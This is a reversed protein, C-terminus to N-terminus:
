TSLVAGNVSVAVWKTLASFFKLTVTQGIANFTVHGFGVGLLSLTATKGTDLTNVVITKTQGNSGSPLSFLGTVGVNCNIISGERLPSLALTNGNTQNTATYTIIESSQVLIGDSTSSGIQLNGNVHLKSQPTNTGVGVYNASGDMFLAFPDNLTAVSSDIASQLPNIRITDGSNLNKLINTFSSQKNIGTQVIMVTDAANLTVATSLQSIKLTPLGSM